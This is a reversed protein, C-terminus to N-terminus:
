RDAIQRRLEDVDNSEPPAPSTVPVGDASAVVYVCGGILAADLALTVPTVLGAEIRHSTKKDVHGWMYATLCGPSSLLLLLGASFAAIRRPRHATLM